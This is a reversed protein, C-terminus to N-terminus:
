KEDSYFKLTKVLDKMEFERRTIKNQLEKNEKSLMEM